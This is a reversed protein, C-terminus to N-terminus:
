DRDRETHCMIDPVTNLERSFSAEPIPVSVVGAGNPELRRNSTKGQEFLVVIDVKALVFLHRKSFQELIDGHREARDKVRGM